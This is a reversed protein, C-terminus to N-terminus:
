FSVNWLDVVVGPSLPNEQAVNGDETGQTIETRSLEILGERGPAGQNNAKNQLGLKWKEM